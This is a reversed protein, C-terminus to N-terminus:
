EDGDQSPRPDPKFSVGLVKDTGPTHPIKLVRRRATIARYGSDGTTVAAMKMENLHFRVCNLTALMRDWVPCYPNRERWSRFAFAPHGRSIMEGGIAKLAFDIVRERGCPVAWVLGAVSPGALKTRGPITAIVTLMQLHREYVQEAENVTMPVYIPYGVELMRLVNLCSVDRHALGLITGVSRTRGRDIPDHFTGESNHVVFLKVAVGAMIIAHLRHQGDILFGSGDFCVPQHTLTWANNRMDTAFAEVQKSSIPRNSPHNKELWRKAIEPTVLMVRATLPSDTIEQEPPPAGPPPSSPVARLPTPKSKAQGMKKRGKRGKM